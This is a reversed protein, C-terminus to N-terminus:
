ELHTVPARLNSDSNAKSCFFQWLRVMALTDLGCYARLQNEIKVKEAAPIDPKIAELYAAMAMGGHKVGDLADYRLDPAIAPLVKKISWSGEQSPHYFRARVIPLLDVIRDNIARLSPALAKFRTALESIRSKEFAQSYVFIPEREGCAAILAEAFKRSPDDGSLDLFGNAELKGTRSLRHISFQFPIQAYPRTGKWKPVAFSITEFDLFYAPLAHGKLDTRAGPGDFFVQGSVSYQKVRQQTQNLVGDPIDRLEIAPNDAVLAKLAKSKSGPLWSVPMEAQPELSSCYSIFGCVYPKTCQDGTQADPAKRRGVIKQADAIWGKVEDERSFADETLDQEVLLGAYDGGGPYVWDSDIHALSISALPVGASKAIFAQFAADDRHTDKVETSSKVEVMRWARKGARRVPLMIDAFALGGNASFGAEFVPRSSVGLLERSRDFAQIFGDRNVDILVGKNKPDYIRRAIDGVENGTAFSAQTALSEERLEPHKVELWLRRPCQRYCMMKSKSLNKM